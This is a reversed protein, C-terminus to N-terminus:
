LGGQRRLQQIHRDKRNNLEQQFGLADQREKEIRDMEARKEEASWRKTTDLLMKTEYARLDALHDSIIKMDKELNVLARNNDVDLFQQSKAYNNNSLNTYSKYAENVLEQLEYFDMMNRAGNERTVFSSVFPFELAMEKATKKPLVEGRMDAIVSNTFMTLIGSTAGLYGQLFHDVQLPSIGGLEGILRAFQSTRKPSIQLEPDLGAQGQGVIPRGTRTDINLYSEVMPSIASPLSGPVALAKKFATAMARSMKTGDESQEVYRNYMHEPFIKFIVTFIDNRMPIKFGNPFIFNRDRESPDAKKYEDEDSMIAAYILAAVMLQGGTSLMRFWAEKRTTPNIGDGTLTTLSVHLAQLNANVFPALQRLINVAQGYGSRRFNIIEDARHVALAEDRTELMTQAYVAQRIVNDSAMSLASLPSLIAKILKDVTKYKKSEELADIDIREYERSFDHKGVTVTQKLRNRARSLGVPTLVIEKMVQLPLMLPYKIGSTFIASLADQPIQALSFFPQLVINLRLFATVKSFYKFGPILAPELGTFGHVMTEGDNGQFEYRTLKGDEWVSVTNKSRSDKNLKIDNPLEQKYLEIKELAARNQVGKKIVYKVWREMNDFVDNIEQNSGKFGHVTKMTDLLGQGYEKPGAKAELQEVRFFPVYDMAELLQDRTDEDFLGQETAFDLVKERVDNWTDSIGNLEPYRNFFELGANIEAQTMNVLKYNKDYMKKAQAKKGQAVLQVVRRQLRLNANKLGQERRAIFAASAYAHMQELKIGRAKAIRDLSERINKMSETSKTIVFKFLNADYAINGSELFADAMSDARVAQTVQLLHFARAIADQNVGRKRMATLIKNNIANDFSAWYSIFKRLIETSTQVPSTGFRQLATLPKPPRPPKTGTQGLLADDSIGGPQRRSRSAITNGYTRYKEYIKSRGYQEEKTSTRVTRNQRVVASTNALVAALATNSVNVPMRLIRRIADVFADLMNKFGRGKFEPAAVLLDKPLQISALLDQFRVDVFAESIMELPNTAGYHDKFAKGAFPYNVLYDYITFLNKAAIGETTNLYAEAKKYEKESRLARALNPTGDQELERARAEMRSLVRINAMGKSMANVTASHMVEHLFVNVVDSYINYEGLTQLYDGADIRVTDTEASYDAATGQNLLKSFIVKNPVVKAKLLESALSRYWKFLQKQGSRFPAGPENSALIKEQAEGLPLEAIAKLAAKADGNLLAKFFGAQNTTIANDDILAEILGDYDKDEFLAARKRDRKYNEGIIDQDLTISKIADEHEEIEAKLRAEQQELLRYVGEFYNLADSDKNKYRVYSLENHTDFMQDRTNELSEQAARLKPLVEAMRADLEDASFGYEENVTRESRYMAETEPEGETAALDDSLEGIERLESPQTKGKAQREQVLQNIQEQAFAITEENVDYARLDEILPNTPDLTRLESALGRAQKTPDEAQLEEAPKMVETSEPAVAEEAPQNAKAQMDNVYSIVEDLKEQSPVYRIYDLLEGLRTRPQSYNDGAAKRAYNWNLNVEELLKNKREVDARRPRQMKSLKNDLPLLETFLQSIDNLRNGLLEFRPNTIGENVLDDYTFTSPNGFLGKAPEHLLASPQETVSPKVEELPTEVPKTEEAPKTEETPAVLEFGKDTKRYTQTGVVTTDGVQLDALSTGVPKTGGAPQGVDVGATEVAGRDAEVVREAPVENRQEDPPLVSARDGAPEIPTPKIPENTTEVTPALSKIYDGVATENIKGTHNDLTEDFFALGESTNLDVGMLEKFANSRKNLGLSTLTTADLVGPKTPPVEEVTMDEAAAAAATEAVIPATKAVVPAPKAGRKVPKPVEVEAVAQEEAVDQEDRLKRLEEGKASLRSWSEKLKTERSAREKAPPAENVENVTNDITKLENYKKYAGSASGVGGGLGGGMAAAGWGAEFYEQKAEENDLPLGAQYREAMQELVETPAEAVIGVAGQKAGAKAGAKITEKVVQGTTRKALEQVAAQGVAKSGFKLAGVTLKDAVFGLPATIAAWKKAAGPDLEEPAQKELAQRDMFHGYQQYGYTGIGAITGVVAGAIPASLAFPTMAVGATTLAGTAYGAILSEAMEPGSKLIQEVVFSPVQMTAPLYGKEHAIRQIDSASLTPAQPAAAKAKIEAMKAAAEPLKGEEKLRGLERGESATNFSEFGQKLSGIAREGFSTEEPKILPTQEAPKILQQEAPQSQTALESRIFDALQQADEKNGAADAQQLADYLRNIDAM